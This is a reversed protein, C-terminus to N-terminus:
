ENELAVHFMGWSGNKEPRREGVGVGFGAINLLNIIQEPTMADANYRIDLTTSWPFFQGRYRIDATGAGIRVMDERMEPESGEVRSLEGLVHFAGRAETMKIGDVYRCAGVAADKFAGSPFGYGGEPHPYLSDRFDQEPDKPAKKMRPAGSQGDLIMQKAKESWKHCVLPSDGVLKVKLYKIRISPISIPQSAV